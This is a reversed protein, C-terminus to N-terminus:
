VYICVYVCVYICLYMFVHLLVGSYIDTTRDYEVMHHYPM